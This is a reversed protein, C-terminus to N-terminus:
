HVFCCRSGYPCYGSLFKTCLKTKYKWHRKPKIRLEHRGHAFCCRNGYTCSGLEMWGRCMETKFLKHDYFSNGKAMSDGCSGFSSSKITDRNQTSNRSPLSTGAGEAAKYLKFFDTQPIKDKLDRSFSMTKTDSRLFAGALEPKPICPREKNITSAEWVEDSVRCVSNNNFSQDTEWYSRMQSVLEDPKSGPKLIPYGRPEARMHTLPGTMRTSIDLQRKLQRMELRQRLIQFLLEQKHQKEMETEIMQFQTMRWLQALSYNQVNLKSIDNSKSRISRAEVNSKRRAPYTQTKTQGCGPYLVGLHDGAQIEHASM